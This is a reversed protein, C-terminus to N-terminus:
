LAKGIREALADVMTQYRSSSSPGSFAGSTSDGTDIERLPRGGESVTAHVQLTDVGSMIGTMFATAGSRLRFEKVQVQLVRASEPKLRGSKRLEGEIATQLRAVGNVEDLIKRDDSDITSGLEVVVSGVDPVSASGSSAPQPSPARSPSSCAAFVGCAVLIAMVFLRKM